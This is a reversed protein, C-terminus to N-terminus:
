SRGGDGSVSGGVPVAAVVEMLVGVAGAGRHKFIGLLPPAGPPAGAGAGHEGEGVQARGAETGGAGRGAGGRPGM